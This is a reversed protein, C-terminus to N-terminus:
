NLFYNRYANKIKWFFKTKYAKGNKITHEINKQSPQNKSYLLSNIKYKNALEQAAQNKLVNKINNQIYEEYGKFWDETVKINLQNFRYQFSKFINEFAPNEENSESLIGLGYYEKVLM